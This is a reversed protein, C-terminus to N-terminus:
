GPRCDYIIREDWVIHNKPYKELTSVCFDYDGEYRTGWVGLKTPDNPAVFMPTGHNGEQIEKYRWLVLGNKDIMRFMVPKDKCTSKLIKLAGPRLIDDDDVFLLHSGKALPIAFNRESNGWNNGALCYLSKIHDTEFRQLSTPGVLLIEDDFGEQQTISILMRSLSPRDTTPLIISIM